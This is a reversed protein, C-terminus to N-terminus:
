VPKELVLINFLSLRDSLVLLIMATVKESAARAPKKTEAKATNVPLKGMGIKKAAVMAAADKDVKSM